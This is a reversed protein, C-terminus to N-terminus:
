VKFEESFSKLLWRQEDATLEAVQARFSEWLEQVRPTGDSVRGRQEIETAAAKLSQLYAVRQEWSRWVNYPARVERLKGPLITFLINAPDDAHNALVESVLAADPSLVENPFLVYSQRWTRLKTLLTGAGDNIEAGFIPAIEQVIRRKTVEHLKGVIQCSAGFDILLRDVVDADWENIPTVIDLAQPLDALFLITPDTSLLQQCNILQLAAAIQPPSAEPFLDTMDALTLTAVFAPLNLERLWAGTQAAVAYALRHKERPADALPRRLCETTIGNLWSQEAPTLPEYSNVARIIATVVEAYHDLDDYTRWQQYSQAIKPLARPLTILLTTEADTSSDLQGLLIQADEDLDNEAPIQRATRWGRLVEAPSTTVAEGGIFPALVRALIHKRLLADLDAAQKLAVGLRAVAQGVEAKTWGEVGFQRPLVSPLERKWDEISYQTRSLVASIDACAQKDLAPYLRQLEAVQLAASCGPWAVSTAWNHLDQATRDAQDAQIGAVPRGVAASAVGNLWVEAENALTNWAGEIEDRAKRLERTLRKLHELTPWSQFPTNIGVITRAFGDLVAERVTAGPKSTQALLDRTYSSLALHNAQSQVVQRNLRWHYIHNWYEAEPKDEYGFVAVVEHIAHRELLDPLQEILRCTEGWVALLEQVSENSWSGHDGPARLAEPIEKLLGSALAEESGSRGSQLLIQATAIVASPRDPFLTALQDTDLKEAFLPLRQATRWMKVQTAVRSRLTKGQGGTSDFPRKLGDTVIGRLWQKELESLPQLKVNYNQPSEILLKLLKDDLAVPQQIPGSALSIEIADAYFTFFAGTFAFLLSDYLGFPTDQLTEILKRWPKGASLHSLYFQWVKQSNFQISTPETLGYLEYAGDVRLSKLLGLGVLAIRVVTEEPKNSSKSIRVENKLVMSVARTLSPTIGEAKFQQSLQHEPTHPYVAAMVRSALDKSQATSTINPQVAGERFWEWHREERLKATASSIAKYFEAGVRGNDQLYTKAANDLASDGRVEKLAEYNKLAELVSLPVTPVAIVLRPNHRTLERARSQAESRESESSAIVYWLRGNQGATALDDKLRASNNLEAMSVYKAKLERWSGRRRNYEDAKIPEAQYAAQLKAVSTQLERAKRLVRQRLNLPSVRGAIPLGYAGGASTDGDVEHPPYIAELQELLTLAMGLENEAQPPLNLAQRLLQRTPSLAPAVVECFAIVKLVREALAKDVQVSDLLQLSHNYTDTVDSRRVQISQEFYDFLKDVTLLNSWGPYPSSLYNQALFGSLGDKDKLFQFMTRNNQAVLRNILPLAYTVLPHLPFCGDIVMETIWQKPQQRWLPRSLEVLEDRQRDSLVQCDTLRRIAGRLLEASDQLELAFSKFRGGIKEIAKAGSESTSEASSSAFPELSAIVFHLQNQSSAMSTNALDQVGLAEVEVEASQQDGARALRRLVETFEDCVVLIGSHSGRERLAQAVRKYTEEPRDYSYIDFATGTAVRFARQFVPFASGAASGSLEALLSTLEKSENDRLANIFRQLVPHSERQWEEIKQRAASYRTPLMLDDLGAQRLAQELGHLIFGAFPTVANAQLLVVLFPKKNARQQYITTYQSENIRRLKEYFPRMVPDDVERTFYNCLILLLDSKGTGFTGYLMRARQDSAPNLSRAVEALFNISQTTPIYTQILQANQENDNFHDPLYVAPKFGADVTVLSTFHSNESSM